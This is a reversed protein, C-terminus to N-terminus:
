AGLDVLGLAGDAEQRLEMLRGEARTLEAAAERLCSIGEEFLTLAEALSLQGGDLAAVIEELRALSTEFSM